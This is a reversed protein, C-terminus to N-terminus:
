PKFLAEIPVSMVKGIQSLSNVDFKSTDGLISILKPRNQIHEKQFNLVTPFESLQIEAFRQKRPDPSLGQREWTRIVGPMDRFGVKAVRYHNLISKKAEAFREPSEPMQDMLGIFANVAEPTKDVQCGIYGWMVNQDGLREALDYRAFTSYALARAERLEQFVIGSMGGAFYDNYLDATSRLTALFPVGGFEIFVQSQATEKHFFRIETTVPARVMLHEYPPPDKLGSAITHHKKIFLLVHDLPLSGIYILTHKFNMLDRIVSQLEEIKLKALADSSIRRNYSSNEGYRSYMRLANRLATPNKKEDERQTLAIKVLEDLTAQTAVPQKLYRFMLAMSEDLKEDLGSISFSTENNEVGMNFDTGLQYWTKKLMEASLSDAGAKDMFAKAPTLRNDQYSGANVNV